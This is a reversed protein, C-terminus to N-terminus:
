LVMLLKRFVIFFGDALNEAMRYRNCLLKIKNTTFQDCSVACFEPGLVRLLVVEIFVLNRLMKGVNFSPQILVVLCQFLCVTFFVLFHNLLLNVLLILTLIFVVLETLLQELAPLGLDASRIGVATLQENAVVNSFYSVIHLCRHIFFCFLGQNYLLPQFHYCPL